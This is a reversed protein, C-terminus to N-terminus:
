ASTPMVHFAARRTRRAAQPFPGAAISAGRGLGVGGLAARHIAVAFGPAFWSSLQGTAGATVRSSL